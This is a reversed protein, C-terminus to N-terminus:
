RLENYFGFPQGACTTTLSNLNQATIAAGHANRGGSLDRLTAVEAVVQQNPGHSITVPCSAGQGCPCSTTGSTFNALGMRFDTLNIVTPSAVSTTTSSVDIVQGAIQWSCISEDGLFTLLASDIQLAEAKQSLTRFEKQLNTTMAVLTLTIFGMIAMAVLLETLSFGHQSFRKM